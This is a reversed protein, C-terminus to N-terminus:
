AFEYAVEKRGCDINSFDIAQWNIRKGEDFLKQLSHIDQQHYFGWNDAYLRGDDLVHVLNVPVNLYVSNEFAAGIRKTFINGSQGVNDLGRCGRGLHWHQENVLRDLYEDRLMISADNQWLRGIDNQVSINSSDWSIVDEFRDKVTIQPCRESHWHNQWVVNLGVRLNLSKAQQFKFSWDLKDQTLEVKRYFLSDDTAWCFYPNFSSVLRIILERWEERTRYREEIFNVNKYQHILKEYGEKFKIDDYTYLVNVDTIYKANTFLSSLCADLQMPRNKSFICTSIM